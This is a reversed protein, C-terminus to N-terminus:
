SEAAAITVIQTGALSFIVTVIGTFKVLYGNPAFGGHATLNSFNM